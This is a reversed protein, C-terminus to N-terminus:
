IRHAQDATQSGSRLLDDALWDGVALPWFL